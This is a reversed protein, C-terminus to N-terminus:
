SLFAVLVHALIVAIGLALAMLFPAGRFPHFGNGGDRRSFDQM